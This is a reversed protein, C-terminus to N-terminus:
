HPPDRKWECVQSPGMRAPLVPTCAPSERSKKIVAEIISEWDKLQPCERQGQDKGVRKSPECKRHKTWFAIQPREPPAHRGAAAANLIRWSKLDGRCDTYYPSSDM